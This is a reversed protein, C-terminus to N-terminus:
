DQNTFSRPQGTTELVDLWLQSDPQITNRRRIVMSIPVHIFTNNWSGVVLGTKGAMAAHVANHALQACYISDAPIAPVSRIIYSPDIYKLNIEMGISKFYNNIQEKLFLGVDLLRVNGSADREVNKEGRIKLIEDQGAGEAVLIVAHKRTELRKKLYALLGREGDLEFPVEPILVINVDGVAIAANAAIYGSHRGMLKVLGIGNPAGLAETNASQIAECAKSFATEFGFSKEIFCLDNDITKPIGVVSIKLGRTKIEQFIDQAGRMTGDGGIAFLISVNMRELADVIEGTDQEGRSSSLISGGESHISTVAEPTLPITEHGYKPILGQYGYRVGLVTRVGYRYTLEMVLGRIVDNMGPCLGGCTVIAARTKSPDFYIHERPGAVEMSAPERGEGKCRRCNEISIDYLIREDDTHFRNVRLDSTIKPQGLTPITFDFDESM